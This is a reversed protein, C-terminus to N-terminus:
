DAGGRIRVWSGVRILVLGFLCVFVCVRLDALKGCLLVYGGAEVQVRPHGGLLHLPLGVALQRRHELIPAALHIFHSVVVLHPDPHTPQTTPAAPKPDGGRERERERGRDRGRQRERERERGRERERQSSLTAL